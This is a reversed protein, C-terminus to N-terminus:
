QADIPRETTDPVHPLPDYEKLEAVLQEDQRIPEYEAAEDEELQVLQAAPYKWAVLADLEHV